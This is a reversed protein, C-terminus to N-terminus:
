VARQRTVRQWSGSSYNYNFSVLTTPAGAYGSATKAIEFVTGYGSFGAAILGWGASLIYVKQM